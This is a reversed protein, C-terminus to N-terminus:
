TGAEWLKTKRIRRSPPRRRAPSSLPPRGHRDRGTVTGEPFAPFPLLPRVKQNRMAAVMKQLRDLPSGESEGSEAGCLSKADMVGDRPTYRRRCCLPPLGSTCPPKETRDPETNHIRGPSPPLFHPCTNKRPTNLWSRGSRAHACPGAYKAKSRRPETHPPLYRFLLTRRGDPRLRARAPRREPASPQTRTRRRCPTFRACARAVTM